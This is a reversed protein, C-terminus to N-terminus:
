RQDDNVGPEKLARFWIPFAHTARVMVGHRYEAVFRFAHALDNNDYIMVCPLVKIACALNDLTRPYRATLKNTPVDHGGRTVRLAVRADSEAASELGIFCLVVSCGNEAVKRLFEVKAGVPDSLVTEFAFSEGRAVLDERLKGALRAAEYADLNGAEALVDANVFRLGAPRIFQEFFTSKGAGNPGAIAVVVPRQDLDLRM